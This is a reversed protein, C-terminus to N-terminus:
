YAQLTAILYIGKEIDSETCCTWSSLAVAEIVLM